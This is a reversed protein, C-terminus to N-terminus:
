KIKREILDRLDRVNSEINDLTLLCWIILTLFYASKKLEAMVSPTLIKELREKTEPSAESLGAWLAKEFPDVEVKM